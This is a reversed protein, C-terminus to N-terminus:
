VHIDSVTPVLITHHFCLGLDSVYQTAILCCEKYDNNTLKDFM